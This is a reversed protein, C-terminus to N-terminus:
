WRRRPEWHVRVADVELEVIAGAHEREITIRVVQDVGNLLCLVGVRIIRDDGRTQAIARATTIEPAVRVTLAVGQRRM